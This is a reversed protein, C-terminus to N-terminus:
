PTKRRKEIEGVIDDLPKHAFVVDREQTYNGYGPTFQKLFRVTDVIGLERYLLRLAQQNIEVLPRAATIM